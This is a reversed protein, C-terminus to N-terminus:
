GNEDELEDEVWNLCMMMSPFGLTPCTLIAAHRLADPEIGAARAKRTHAHSAGELRAGLSVGLKVLHIERESLPGAEAVAEGLRRYADAVDPHKEVFKRFPEPPPPMKSQDTM